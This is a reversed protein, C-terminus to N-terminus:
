AWIAVDRHAFATESEAGVRDFDGFSTFEIVFGTPKAEPFEKVVRAQQEVFYTMDDPKFQDVSTLGPALWRKFGGKSEFAAFSDNMQGFPVETNSAIVDPGLDFLAKLETEGDAQSGLYVGVVMIVPDLTPPTPLVGALIYSRKSLKKISLVVEAVAAARSTGFIFTASWVNGEPSGLISLPHAKVTLSLVLGFFQGAGCLAYFLDPNESRSVTKLEGSATILRASLINDSGYGM